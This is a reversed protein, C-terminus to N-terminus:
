QLLEELIHENEILLILFMCRHTHNSQICDLVEDELLVVVDYREEFEDRIFICGTTGVLLLIDLLRHLGHRLRTRALIGAAMQLAAVAGLLHEHLHLIEELRIQFGRRRIALQALGVNALRELLAWKGVQPCSQLATGHLLM